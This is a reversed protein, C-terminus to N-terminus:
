SWKRRNEIVDGDMWDDFQPEAEPFEKVLEDFFNNIRDLLEKRCKKCLTENKFKFGDCGPCSNAEDIVPDSCYPCLPERFKAKCDVTQDIYEDFFPHEFHAGCRDCLYM